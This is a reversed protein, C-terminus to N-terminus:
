DSKRSTTYFAKGEMLRRQTRAVTVSKVRDQSAAVKITMKGRPHGLTVDGEGSPTIGSLDAASNPVTGPLFAATATCTAGTVAYTPHLYQMSMIRTTIDINEEKVQETDSEGSSGESTEYTQAGSVFAIKPFGPSINTADSPDSVIGLKTCVRARILEIRERLDSDHDVHKPLETGTLGLDDARVFVVPTTVDLVTSEISGFPTEITTTPKGLPFLKGTNAGGPDFFTTEIRAGTGPVGAISYEGDTVTRGTNNNVPFTQQIHSNTNTNHLSVSVRGSEDPSATVIGEDYAFPGVATTMNGCNGGYDIVPETVGVQGFTYDIDASPHSSPEIIMLKSTTSTAGGLGDVQRPEYSGFLSLIAEDRASETPPLEDNKILLGKSTGGRAVVCHLSDQTM